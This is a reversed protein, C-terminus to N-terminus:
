VEAEYNVPVTVRAVAYEQGDDHQISFGAGDPVTYDGGGTAGDRIIAARLSSVDTVLARYATRPAGLEKRAVWIEVIDTREESYNFGGIVSDSECTIRFVQDIQTTPQLKFNFPTEAEVFEFPAGACISAVRDRVADCHTPM